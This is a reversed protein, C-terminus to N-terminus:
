PATVPVDFEADICWTDGGPVLTTELSGADVEAEAFVVGELSGSLPSGVGGMAEIRLTGSQAMFRRDCTVSQCGSRILLCTHCEDLGEGDLEVTQPGDTAGLSFYFDVSLIEGDDSRASYFLLELDPDREATESSVVVGNRDCAGSGADPGSADAAASGPSDDSGCACLACVVLLLRSM